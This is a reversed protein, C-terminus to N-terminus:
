GESSKSIFSFYDTDQIEKLKSKIIKSEIQYNEVMSDIAKSISGFDFYEDNIDFMYNEQSFLHALEKYKDAWGIIISPTGEKYAHVISHYRSAIIFNFKKVIEQYEYSHLINEIIYVKPNNAMQFISTSLNIDDKAHPIIYINYNRFILYGIIDMYISLTKSSNLNGNSFLKTNTILAISKQPVQLDYNSVCLNKSILDYHINKLTLVLDYAHVVNQLNLSLLLQYGSLERAYIIKCKRLSLLIHKLITKKFDFPGFSQPMLIVKVNYLYAIDIRQLFYLSRKIDFKSSLAFGSIDILYDSEEFVKKVNNISCRKKGLLLKILNKFKIRLFLIVSPRELYRLIEETYCFQKIGYMREEYSTIAGVFYITANRDRIRIESFTALTLAEAGKNNFEGGTIIYKM